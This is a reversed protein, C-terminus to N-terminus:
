VVSKRDLDIIRCNGLIEDNNLKLRMNKIALVSLKKSYRLTGELNVDSAETGQPKYTIQGKRIGFDSNVEYENEIYKLNGKAFFNGSSKYDNIRTKQGEPLLSLVSAIDLNPANYNIDLVRLSDKYEFNGSLELALKNLNLEAKKFSYSDGKVNLQLSFDCNKDKLEFNKDQVINNIIMKGDAQMDYNLDSFNGKFHLSKIDLETKFLSQKDKYILRCNKINIYNLDFRMSDNKQDFNKEEQKWFTYNNKGNKFVIPKAVCGDLKIKQIEYKENWLNQINFHLSLQSAFLLTDRNKNQIAELMLVDKFEISCDPFTKIITLDINKPEIRVEAKLNKNLESVIASKVEDEYVFLLAVLVACLAFFSVM